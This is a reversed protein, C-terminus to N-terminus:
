ISLDVQTFNMTWQMSLYKMFQCIFVGCDYNNTQRPRDSRTLITWSESNEEHKEIEYELYDLVSKPISSHEYLSDYLNITKLFPEISVLTWHGSECIPLFIQRKQFLNDISYNEVMRLGHRNISM